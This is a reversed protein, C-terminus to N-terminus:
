KSLVKYKGSVASNPKKSLVVIHVLLKGNDQALNPQPCYDPNSPDAVFGATPVINDGKIESQYPPWYNQCNAVTLTFSCTITNYMGQNAVVWITHTHKIAGTDCDQNKNSDSYDYEKTYSINATSGSPAVVPGKNSGGQDSQAWYGYTSSTNALYIDSTNSGAYCTAISFVSLLALLNSFRM